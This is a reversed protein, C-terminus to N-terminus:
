ENNNAPFVVNESRSPSATRVSSPHCTLLSNKQLIMTNARTPQGHHCRTRTSPDRYLLKDHKTRAEFWGTMTGRMPKFRLGGRFSPPPGEAVARLIAAFEAQVPDPCSTRFDYGPANGDAAEFLLIEWVDLVHGLDCRPVASGFSLERTPHCLRGHNNEQIRTM